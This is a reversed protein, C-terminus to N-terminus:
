LKEQIDILSLVEKSIKHVSKIEEIKRERLLNIHIELVENISNINVIDIDKFNFIESPSINLSTVIKELTLLSINREGREVGGIYSYQLDAIEALEEQTLGRQKRILRINNGVLKLFDSM